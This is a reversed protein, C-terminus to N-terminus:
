LCRAFLVNRGPRLPCTLSALVRPATSCVTGGEGEPAVLGALGLEAVLHPPRGAFRAGCPVTWVGVCGFRRGAELSGRLGSQPKVTQRATERQPTRPTKGPPAMRGRPFNGSAPQHTAGGESWSGSPGAPHPWSGGPAWAQGGSTTASEDKSLRFGSSFMSEDSSASQYVFGLAAPHLRTLSRGLPPWVSRCLHSPRAGLGQVSAAAEAGPPGWALRRVKAKLEQLRFPERADRESM